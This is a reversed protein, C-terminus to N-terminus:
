FLMAKTKINWCINLIRLSQLFFSHHPPFFIAAYCCCRATHYVQTYLLCVPSCCLFLIPLIRMRDLHKQMGLELRRSQFRPSYTYLKFFWIYSWHGLREPIIVTPDKTPCDPTRGPGRHVCLRPHRDSNAWVAGLRGVRGPLQKYQAMCKTFSAM